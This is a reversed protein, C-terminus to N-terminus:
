KIYIINIVVHIVSYKYNFICKMGHRDFLRTLKSLSLLIEYLAIDVCYGKSIIYIIRM